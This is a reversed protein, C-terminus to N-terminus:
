RVEGEDREVWIMQTVGRGDSQEVESPERASVGNADEDAMVKIADSTPESLIGLRSSYITQTIQTTWIRGSSDAVALYSTARLESGSLSLYM